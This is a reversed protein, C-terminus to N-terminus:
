SISPQHTTIRSKLFIFISCLLMISAFLSVSFFGKWHSYLLGATGTGVISALCQCSNFLSAITGKKTKSLNQLSGLIISILVSSIAAITFLLIKVYIVKTAMPLVFYLIAMLFIGIHLSQFRSLKGILPNGILSGLVSGLGFFLFVMGVATVPLHFRETLWKGYFAFTAYFGIAFMLYALLGYKLKGLKLLTSYLKILSTKKKTNSTSPLNPIQWVVLLLMIVSGVSIVTFPISWHISALFSGIPIGFVQASSAGGIAIGMGIVIRNPPLLLSIAVWIQLTIMAAFLGALAQYLLMEWWMSSFGCLFLSIGYGILGYIIIKKRNWKDLYPGSLLSFAGYTFSYSSILWGSQITTIQFKNQLLPLLPSLLSANSSILFM